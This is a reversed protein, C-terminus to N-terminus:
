SEHHGQQMLMYLFTSTMTQHFDNTLDSELDFSEQLHFPGKTCEM